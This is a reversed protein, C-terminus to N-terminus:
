IHILSLNQLKHNTLLKIIDDFKIVKLCVIPNLQNYVVKMLIEDSFVAIEEISLRLNFTRILGSNIDVAYGQIVTGLNSIFLLLCRVGYKSIIFSQLFTNTRMQSHLLMEKKSTRNLHNAENEVLEDIHLSNRQQAELMYTHYIMSGDDNLCINASYSPHDRDRICM